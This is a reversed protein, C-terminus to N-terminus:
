LIIHSVLRNSYITFMLIIHSFSINFYITFKLIIHSVSRNFYITFLVIIHSVSRDSYITCCCFHYPWDIQQFLRDVFNFSYHIFYLITYRGQSTGYQELRLQLAFNDNLIALFEGVANFTYM